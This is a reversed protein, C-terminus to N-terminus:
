ASLASLEKSIEPLPSQGWDGLRNPSGGVVLRRAARLAAVLASRRLRKEARTVSARHDWGNGNRVRFHFAAAGITTRRCATRSYSTALVFHGTLKEDPM